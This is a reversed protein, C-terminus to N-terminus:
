WLEGEGHKYLAKLWSVLVVFPGHGLPWLKTDKDCLLLRQLLELVLYFTQFANIQIIPISTRHVLDNIM